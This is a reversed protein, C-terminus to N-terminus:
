FRRCCFLARFQWHSGVLMSDRSGWDGNGKCSIPELRNGEFFLKLEPAHTIDFEQKLETEVTIDVKGFGLGNKGKGFIEAAKGLEKALKRSQKLSPNDSLLM